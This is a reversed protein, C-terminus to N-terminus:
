IAATHGVGMGAHVPHVGDLFGHALQAAFGHHLQGVHFEAEDLPDAPKEPRRGGQDQGVLRGLSAIVTEIWSRFLTTYPFLTYTRTSRPPRRIMLFFLLCLSLSADDYINISYNIMM